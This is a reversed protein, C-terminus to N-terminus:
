YGDPTANAVLTDGQSSVHNEVIVQQVLNTTLGSAILRATLDAGGGPGSAIIRIPRSPYPQSFAPAAALLMIGIAAISLASIQTKMIDERQANEILSSKVPTVGRWAAAM